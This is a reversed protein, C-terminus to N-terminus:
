YDIFIKVKMGIPCDGFFQGDRFELIWCSTRVARYHDFFDFEPEGRLAIRMKALQKLSLNTMSNESSAVVWIQDVKGLNFESSESVTYKGRPDVKIIRDSTRAKNLKMWQYGDTRLKLGSRDKYLMEMRSGFLLSDDVQGWEDIMRAVIDM